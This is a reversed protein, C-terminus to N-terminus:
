RAASSEEDDNERSGAILAAFAEANRVAQGEFHNNFAIAVTRARDALARVPEVWEALQGDTYLYDYRTVNTGTWWTAENRGHFRLYGHDSTLLPQQVPLGPLRPLDPIVLGVSRRELERLVSARSWDTNRFEVFLRLPSLADLLSALYRRTADTYHFSFPFQLLVGHLRSPGDNGGLAVVADVFREADREIRPSWAADRDHTLTRHAKVAFRFGDPTKAAIRQLGDATPMRYYTFNLETFGFRRAYHELFQNPRTGSPYVPGVWDAYSYGSTGIM